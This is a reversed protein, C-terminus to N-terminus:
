LDEGSDMEAQLDAGFTTIGVLKRVRETPSGDENFIEDRRGVLSEIFPLLGREAPHTYGIGCFRYFPLSRLEDSAERNLEDRNADAPYTNSAADCILRPVVVYDPNDTVQNPDIEEIYLCGQILAIRFIWSYVGNGPRDVDLLMYLTPLQPLEYDKTQSIFHFAGGVGYEEGLQSSEFSLSFQSLYLSFIYPLLEELDVEPRERLMQKTIDLAEHFWPLKAEFFEKGSGFCIIGYDQLDYAKLLSTSSDISYFQPEGSINTSLLLEFQADADKPYEFEQVYDQLKQWCESSTLKSLDVSNKFGLIFKQSQDASGIRGFLCGSFFIGIKMATNEGDLRYGTGQWSVRADSIISNMNPQKFGIIYTM